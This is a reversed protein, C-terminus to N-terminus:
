TKLAGTFADKVEVGNVEFSTSNLNYKLTSNSITLSHTSFLGLFNNLNASIYIKVTHFTNKCPNKNCYYSLKLSKTYYKPYTM